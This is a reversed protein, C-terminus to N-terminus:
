IDLELKWAIPILTLNIPHPFNTQRKWQVLGERMKKALADADTIKHDIMEAWIEIPAVKVKIRSTNGYVFVEKTDTADAVVKQAAECIAQAQAEDVVADDYELRIVPM